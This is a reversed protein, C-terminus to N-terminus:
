KSTALNILPTIDDIADVSIRKALGHYRSIAPDEKICMRSYELSSLITRWEDPRLYVPVRAM